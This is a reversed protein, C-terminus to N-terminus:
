NVMENMTKEDNDTNKLRRQRLNILKQLSFPDNKITLCITIVCEEKLISLLWANQTGHEFNLTTVGYATLIWVLRTNQQWFQSYDRMWNWFYSYDPIESEFDLTTVCKAKLTVSLCACFYKNTLQGPFWSDLIWWCSSFYERMASNHKWSHLTTVCKVKLIFLLWAILKWFYSYDRLTNEFTSYDRQKSEPISYDCTKNKLEFTRFCERVSSKRGFHSYDRMKRVTSFFDSNEFFFQWLNLLGSYAFDRIKFTFYLIWANARQAKLFESYDRMKSEFYFLLWAILKWFYSYDRLNGWSICYDRLKSEFISYDSM